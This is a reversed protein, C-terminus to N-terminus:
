RRADPNKWFDASYQKPPWQGREKLESLEDFLKGMNYPYGHRIAAVAQDFPMEPRGALLLDPFEQRQKDNCRYRDADRFLRRLDAKKVGSLVDLEGVQFAPDAYFANQLDEIDAAIQETMDPNALELTLISIIRLNLRHELEALEHTLRTMCWRTVNDMLTRCRELDDGPTPLLWGLVVFCFSDQGPVMDPLLADDLPRGPQWNLSRRAAVEVADDGDTGAAAWSLRIPHCYYLESETKSELLYQKVADPFENAHNGAEGYAIVHHIRGNKNDTYFDIKTGLLAKRQKDRDLFLNVIFPDDGLVAPAKVEWRDYRSWACIAGQQHRHLALIPDTQDLLVDQLWDMAAAAASFYDTKGVCQMLVTARIPELLKRGRPFADLGRDGILNLYLVSVTDAIRLGQELVDWTLLDGAGLRLGDPEAPGYYYVLRPTGEGLAAKFDGPTHAQSLPVHEQRYRRFFSELDQLHSADDYGDGVLVVVRDPFRLTHPASQPFEPSKGAPHLEVTWDLDALRRGAYTIQSWPQLALDNDEEALLLHLRLGARTPEVPGDLGFALKFLDSYYATKSGFLIKFLETTDRGYPRPSVPDPSTDPPKPRSGDPLILQRDWYGKGRRLQLALQRRTGPSSDFPEESPLKNKVWDALKSFVANQASDELTDLPKDPTTFSHYTEQLKISHPENIELAGRPTTTLYVIGLSLAGSEAKEILFPLEKTEIYKSDFFHPSILLIGVRSAELGARIEDDFKDGYDIKHEDCWLAERVARVSRLVPTLRDLYHKDRHSYSIFVNPKMQAQNM